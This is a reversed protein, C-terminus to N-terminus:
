KPPVPPSSDWEGAKVIRPLIEITNKNKEKQPTQHTNNKETKQETMEPEMEM